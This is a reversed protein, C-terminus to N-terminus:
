RSSNWGAAAAAEEAILYMAHSWLLPTAVEGWREVWLGVMDPDQAHTTVQEPLEQRGNAHARM